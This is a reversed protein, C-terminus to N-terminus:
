TDPHVRSGMALDLALASPGAPSVEAMASLTVPTHAGTTGVCVEPVDHM